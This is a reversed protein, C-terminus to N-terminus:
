QKVVRTFRLISFKTNGGAFLSSMAYVNKAIYKSVSLAFRILLYNCDYSGDWTGVCSSIQVGELWNSTFILPAKVHEKMVHRLM